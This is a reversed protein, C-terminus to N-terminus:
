CRQWPNAVVKSSKHLLAAAYTYPPLNDTLSHGDSLQSLDNLWHSGENGILMCMTLGALMPIYGNKGVAMWGAVASLVGIIMFFLWNGHLVHQNLWLLALGVSLGILTGLMREVAKSYIAGQFQLMGLVVFVTIPIWEGHPLAFGRALLTAFVVALALRVAHILRSYRYRKYPNFWRETVTNLFPKMMM